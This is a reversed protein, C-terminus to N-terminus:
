PLFRQPLHTFGPLSPQQVKPLTQGATRPNPTNLWKIREESVKNDYKYGIIANGKNNYVRAIDPSKSPRLEREAFSLKYFAKHCYAELENLTLIEGNKDKIIQNLQSRLSM